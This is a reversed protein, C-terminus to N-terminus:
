NEKLYLAVAINDKGGKQNAKNILVNVCEECNNGLKITASIDEENVMNYLGDSCLLLGEYEEKIFELNIIVSLYCGLANTIVNKQPHNLKEEETIKGSEYLFNVYTEDNSVLKLQNNKVLYCRSDGLYAMLTHKGHILFCAFTTGMGRLKNKKSYEFLYKNTKLLVRRLWFYMDMKHYFKKKKEFENKIFDLALQSAVDGYMHGGMGDFVMMLVDNNDKKIIYSADENNERVLGIDVKYAFMIKEREKGKISWM